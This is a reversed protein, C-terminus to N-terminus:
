AFISISSLIDFRNHSKPTIPSTDIPNRIAQPLLYLEEVLPSSSTPLWPDDTIWVNLKLRFLPCAAPIALEVSEVPFLVHMRFPEGPEM